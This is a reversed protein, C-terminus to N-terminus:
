FWYALYYACHFMPELIPITQEQFSVIQFLCFEKMLKQEFSIFNM